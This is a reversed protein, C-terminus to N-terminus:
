REYDKNKCNHINHKQVSRERWQYLAEIREKYRKVIASARQEGYHDSLTDYIVDSMSKLKSFDINDFSKVLKIQDEHLHEFPKSIESGGFMVEIPEDHWLSNGSDFLPAPRIISNTDTDQMFGFNGLHRDSNCILYDFALMSDIYPRINHLGHMKCQYLLAYFAGASERDKETLLYYAPIFVEKETVFNKCVSCPKGEIDSLHYQVANLLPFAQAIRSCLVENYPEQYFPQRGLKFLYDDKGKRRWSKDMVGNTTFDPSLEFDCPVNKILFNGTNDSYGNQFFNVNSWVSEDDLPKIWYTDSLSLAYSKLSLELPTNVQYARFIDSIVKRGASICRKELWKKLMSGTLEIGQLYFPLLNQEYIEEIYLGNKRISFSLIIRDKKLLLYQM